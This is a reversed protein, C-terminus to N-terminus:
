AIRLAERLIRERIMPKLAKETVLDVDAGLIEELFFKLDMYGDFTAKNVFRVLVDVDSADRAEGRATSGFVLLERVGFRNRIEDAHTSIIGQVDARNM